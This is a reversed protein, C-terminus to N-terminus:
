PCKYVKITNISKKDNDMLLYNEEFLYFVLLSLSAETVYDVIRSFFHYFLYINWFNNMPISFFYFKPEIHKRFVNFFNIFFVM